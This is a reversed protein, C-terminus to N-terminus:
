TSGAVCKTEVSRPSKSCLGCALEVLSNQRRDDRGSRPSSSPSSSRQASSRPAIWSPRDRKTAPRTAASSCAISYALARNSSPVGQRSSFLESSNAVLHPEFHVVRWDLDSPAEVQQHPVGPLHWIMQRAHVRELRNGVRELTWGHKALLLEVQGHFHYLKPHERSYRWIAGNITAPSLLHEQLVPEVM